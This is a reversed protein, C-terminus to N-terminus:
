KLVQKGINLGAERTSRHKGINVTKEHKHTRQDIGINVM